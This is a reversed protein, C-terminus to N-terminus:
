EALALAQKMIDPDINGGSLVIVVSEGDLPYTGSLLAALGVAGSPEVVLKLERMAFAVAELAMTDTVVLGGALGPGNIEFTIKGPEPTLLADCISGSLVVNRAVIGGALSRAHDDFNEPEVSYVSIDPALEQGALVIGATLGGGSCPVLIAGPDFDRQKCEELIELGVTGQGAIVGPDDYPPVIAASTEDAIKQAILDRDGDSRQYMVVKAGHARTRDLKAGPADSPMVITSDVGHLRAAAAVGQAHNGSSFAVIPTGPNKEQIQSIRNYAGRFKFSGTRQLVEPKILVRGGVRENLAANELLPTRIAHGALRQRAAAIDTFKPLM